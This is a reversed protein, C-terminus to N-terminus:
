GTAIGLLRPVVLVISPFTIIVLIGIMVVLMYLLLRRNMTSPEVGVVTATAYYGIGLPPMFTGVGHALVIVIVYFVLNIHLEQAVPTLLPVSILIAPLGEIFMGIIPLICVTILLFVWPDNSLASFGSTLQEPLGVITLSWAFSTSSAVMFLVMGIVSASRRIVDFLKAISIGRLAIAFIFALVCAVASIESPSAIGTILGGILIVGVALAPLAGVCVAVVTSFKTKDTNRPLRRSVVAVSVMLLIGLAAAPLLGAAFAALVSVNATTAAVLLGVSPPVTEGMVASACLLAGVDSRDFGAREVDDTLAGGVAAVDAIKAGSIGSFLYMAIVVTQGVGSRIRRTLVGVARVLRQSLGGAPLLLGALVFLPVAVLVFSNMSGVLPETGAAINGINGDHVMVFMAATLSIAIPVGSLVFLVMSLLAFWVGIPNDLVVISSNSAGFAAAVEIGAVVAFLGAGVLLARWHLKSLNILAYVVLLAAGVGMIRPMWADSIGLIPTFNDAEQTATTLATEVLLGCVAVTFFGLFADYGSRAGLRARVRSGIADFAVLRGDRYAIAGGVFALVVLLLTTIEEEWLLSFGFYSRTIIDTIVVGILGILAVLMISDPIQQVIAIARQWASRAPVEAGPEAAAPATDQVLQDAPLDPIVFEDAPQSKRSKMQVASEDSLVAGSTRPQM